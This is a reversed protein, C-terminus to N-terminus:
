SFRGYEEPWEWMVAETVRASVSSMIGRPLAMTVMGAGSRLAGQAALVPAGRMEHSGGILLRHGYTGKHSQKLRQRLWSRVLNKDLIRGAPAVHECALAPIAIDKVVLEGVYEAGPYLYHGWKPLALAVTLDAPFATGRTEGTDANVGSPIDISVFYPHNAK